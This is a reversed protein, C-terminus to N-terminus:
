SVNVTIFSDQTFAQQNLGINIPNSSYIPSIVDLAITLSSIYCGPVETAIAAALEFCSVDQGVRFGQLTSPNGSPDTVTGAQYDLIAQIVQAQTAGSVNVTILINIIDPTDYAVTYTQGTAPEVINVFMAGNWGAGSSKNEFMAAAINTSVGGAVCAYVSNPKLSIGDNSGLIQEGAALSSQRSWGSSAALYLGNQSATTQNNVLIIQGATLSIGWDGGGQTGLGSLSINGTTTYAATPWPSIAPVTQGNETFNIADTGIIINGNTGTGSGQATSMAWVTNALTTGGTVNLIMGMPVDDYNERYSLSTVGPVAYLASTAAEPLSLGQFALTNLRYARFSQDSQTTSGLTTISAPTSSPNNTVTEWGLVAAVIENLANAACPIPGYAVSQFTAYTTGGSPIVVTQTLQFLDGAATQAQAGVPITTGAVGTLTVNLVTTPQQVNRQTGTLLGIADLFTGGAVNPNIQNGLAANNNIVNNRALAEATIMVGQPTSPDTILDAGFTQQWEASVQALTGSTDPVIVGQPVIYQYPANM